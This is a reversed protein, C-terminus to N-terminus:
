YKICYYSSVSAPATEPGSRAVRLSDFSGLYTEWYGSDYVGTIKTESLAGNAAFAGNVVNNFSEINTAWVFPINALIRQLKDQRFSGTSM